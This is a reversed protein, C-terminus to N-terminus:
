HILEPVLTNTNLIGKVYDTGQGKLWEYGKDVAQDALGSMSGLKSSATKFVGLDKVKNLIAADVTQGISGSAVTDFLASKWNVTHVRRLRTRWNLAYSAYESENCGGEDWKADCDFYFEAEAFYLPFSGPSTNQASWNFGNTAVIRQSKEERNSGSVVGYVQMWDNGNQAYPVVHKPGVPRGDNDLGEWFERGKSDNFQYIHNPKYGLFITQWANYIATDAPSFLGKGDKSCYSDTIADGLMGMFLDIIFGAPGSGFPGLLGKVADGVRGSIVDCLDKFRKREYPLGIRNDPGSYPDGDYEWKKAALGPVMSPSMALGYRAKDWDKYQYSVYAASAAGGWPALLGITNQASSMPPMVRGMVREYRLIADKLKDHPGQIRAINCFQGGVKVLGSGIAQTVGAPILSIAAGLVQVSKGHLSCRRPGWWVRSRTNTFVLIFDMINFVMAMVIYIATMVFMIINLFAIFNMGRAHVSASTFAAADAAEQTRDRWIMADGFGIFEWTLGIMACAMFIGLVMIAGRNDNRLNKKRTKRTNM